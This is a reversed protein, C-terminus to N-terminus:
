RFQWPNEKKFKLFAGLWDCSMHTPPNEIAIAAEALRTLQEKTIVYFEPGVGDM